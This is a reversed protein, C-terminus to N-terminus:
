RHGRDKQLVKSERERDMGTRNPQRDREKEGHPCIGQPFFSRDRRAAFRAVCNQQGMAPRNRRQTETRREPNEGGRIRNSERKQLFDSNSNLDKAQLSCIEQEGRRCSTGCQPLRCTGIACWSLREDRKAGTRGGEHLGVNGSLTPTVIHAWLSM